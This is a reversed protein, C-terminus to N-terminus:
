REEVPKLLVLEGQDVLKRVARTIAGLAADRAAPDPRPLAAADERLSDALRKSMNGLLFELSEQDEPMQAALVTMLDATDLARALTAVDRPAVRLAVDQFTFLARRVGQAFSRDQAEIGALLTDRIAPASLNLMEGVRRQPPVSFARARRTGLQQALAAGIRAVADPEMDETRAVAVALSQARETPLLGLLGSARELSLRSLMVAGVVVSEAQLLAVLADDPANEVRVWPDPGTQGAALDRLKMRADEGLRPELMSLAQSIGDPFSLGVQELMDVFEAVVATMTARDILRMEAMTQALLAQKDAPMADLSLDVGEAVLVRLIIASKQAGSLHDTRARTVAPASFGAAGGTM